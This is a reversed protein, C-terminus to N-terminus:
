IYCPNWALATSGQRKGQKGAHSSVIANGHKWAPTSAAEGVPGVAGTSWGLVTGWLRGQRLVGEEMSALFALVQKEGEKPSSSPCTVQDQGVPGTLFSKPLTEEVASIWPLFHREQSSTQMDAIGPVGRGDTKRGRSLSTALLQAHGFPFNSIQFAGQTRLM